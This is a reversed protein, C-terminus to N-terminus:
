NNSGIKLEKYFEDRELFPWLDEMPMSEMSGDPNQKSSVRPATFQKKSVKIGCIVPGSHNVVRKIGKKIETNNDISLFKIGYANAIKELSPLTLGSSSNSAVLFGNFYSKQTAVISAYGDNELIFYKIPLNLRKVTELEQINMQFGGDGDICFTRRRNSAICGGISAPVAFGMPGLSNSNFVRMGKKVKFAQMTVESCAGSSGPIIVDNSDLIEYLNELLVYLNVGDEVEYYEKQVLPYKEKWRRCKTWWINRDKKVIRNKQRIIETLFLKADTEIELDINMNLKKIENGDIDVIIKKANKAFNEHNYATQGLDLRAGISIFLDSTQQAFNAARHAVAGPRGIYYRDNHPFYDIVKWTALIPINLLDIVEFLELEAKALRVGNGVLLVPREAKNILDIAKSVQNSIIKENKVLHLETQNFLILNKEDIQIAQVDLPIDIWVPGPRGTKALFVAKELHYKISNPDLITVAYKTISKVLEVINIEQFGMQRVGRNGVLDPRKVQGSIFLTPTSELWAAAVGTLTNTGGPGTTVLAVGLNNTYQGYADAAIACAQEHLNCVYELDKNRGVSDVLHMSGGGPLLFIHKVGQKVVFDIVYDSLKIM